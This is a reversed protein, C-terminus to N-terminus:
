FVGLDYVYNDRKYRAVVTKTVTKTKTKYKWVKIKKYKWKWKGNKKRVKKWKVKKKVKKWKVKYKVKEKVTKYDPNNYYESMYFHEKGSADTTHYINEAEYPTKVKIIADPSGQGSGCYWGEPVFAEAGSRVGDLNECNWDFAIIVNDPQNENYYSLLVYVYRDDADIAQYTGYYRAPFKTFAIGVAEFTDPDFFLINRYDRQFVVYVDYTANYAIAALGRNQQDPSLSDSGADKYYSYKVNAQKRIVLSNPDIVTIEQKRGERAVVVLVNRKSDYAMGNGHYTNLIGSAKVVKHNSLNVKIVRGMQTKSSVMLYYAYTGDTCGGQVVSYGAYPELALERLNVGINRPSRITTNGLRSRCSEGTAAYVASGAANDADMYAAFAGSSLVMVLMLGISILRRAFHKVSM